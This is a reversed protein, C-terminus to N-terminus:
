RWGAIHWAVAYNTERGSSAIAPRSHANIRALTLVWLCGTISVVVQESYRGNTPYLAIVATRSSAATRQLHVLLHAELTQEASLASM